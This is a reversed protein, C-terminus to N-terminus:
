PIVTISRGGKSLLAGIAFIIQGGAGSYIRAGVTEANVQGKLDVALANNIAVMNDHAAIVKVDEIYDVDVLEFAPNSGAWELEDESGGGLATVVVKGTNLTKRRGTIIGRRVLSIIGPPTAESHFGLDHKGDFTGLSVLPETTRGM